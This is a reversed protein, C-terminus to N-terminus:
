WSGSWTAVVTSIEDYYDIATGKLTIGTKDITHNLANDKSISKTAHSYDGYASQSTVTSANKEVDFYLTEILATLTGSPVKFTATSGTSTTKGTFTTGCFCSDNNCYEQSFNLNGSLKVTSAHGIGIIDYSRTSPIQKWDLNIRYRYKSGNSLLSTTMRKYATEGSATSQPASTNNSNYYEEETVEVTYSKVDKSSNTSYTSANNDDYYYVTKFYKTERSVEVFEEEALVVNPMLIIALISLMILCKKM